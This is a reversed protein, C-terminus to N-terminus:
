TYTQQLFVSKGTDNGCCIKSAKALQLGKEQRRGAAIRCKKTAKKEETKEPKDGKTKSFSLNKHMKCMYLKKYRGYLFFKNWLFFPM